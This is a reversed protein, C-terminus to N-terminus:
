GHLVLGFMPSLSKPVDRIIICDVSFIMDSVHVAITTHVNHDGISLEDDCGHNWRVLELGSHLDALNPSRGVCELPKAHRAKV